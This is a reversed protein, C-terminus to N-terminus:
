VKKHGCYLDGLQVLSSTLVDTGNDDDEFSVSRHAPKEQSEEVVHALCSLIVTNASNNVNIIRYTASHM